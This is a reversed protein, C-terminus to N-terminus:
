GFGDYDPLSNQFFVSSFCTSPVSVENLSSIEHKMVSLLIILFMVIVNTGLTFKTGLSIVGAM